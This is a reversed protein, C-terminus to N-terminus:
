EEDSDSGGRFRLDKIEDDWKKLFTENTVCWRDYCFDETLVQMKLDYQNEEIDDIWGYSKAQAVKEKDNFTSEYPVTITASDENTGRGDNAEFIAFLWMWVEEKERKMEIRTQQVRAVIQKLDQLENKWKKLFTEDTVCELDGCFDETLVEMEIKEGFRKKDMDIWDSIWGYSEAKKIKEVDERDIYQIIHYTHKKRGDNAEFIPFLWM